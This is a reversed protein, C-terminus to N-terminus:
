YEEDELDGRPVFSLARALSIGEGGLSGGFRKIAEQFSGTALVADRIMRHFGTQMLELGFVERTLTGVNEGFTETEPRDVRSSQGARNLVWACNRPVEQLVVPSHTAIIALGNRETLLESVARVFASLLPPHLHSEPEDILVLTREEVLEVLKTITLLVISHGSSLRKFWEFVRPKWNSEADEIIARAGTDRLLPDAELLSIARIWRERRLPQRCAELSELFDQALESRGKITLLANVGDPAATRRREELEVASEKILGVHAYRFVNDKSAPVLPGYDEFPSFSISVLGAFEYHNSGHKYREKTRDVRTIEGAEGGTKASLGLFARSMLDFCRSKGAGNQGIIVHVNTPPTSNPIVTFDLRPPATDAESDQPLAFSFDYRSLSTNGHALRNLRNRMREESIGHLFSKIDALSSGPQIALFDPNFSLDRIAQLYPERIHDGLEVLHGYYDESQGISFWGDSLSKFQQPMLIQSVPAFGDPGAYGIRLHGLKTRVGVMDVYIAFFDAEWAGQGALDKVLLVEDGFSFSSADDVVRFEM